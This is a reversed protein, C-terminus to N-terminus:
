GEDLGRRRQDARDLETTAQDFQAESLPLYHSELKDELFSVGKGKITRAIVCLPRAPDDDSFADHLQDFDHGDSERVHFGFAEWKRAFPELRLVEETRGFGQLGNADVVVTLNTLRHHASFLAAEWVAGEDCEGDSLLCATRRGSHLLHLNAYAIGAAIPMGHGLSGTAAPIADFARAAPHAPLLTGEKYYTQIEDESFIGFHRFTAYLSSAGHGKSLIFKDGPRLWAAYLYTLIDISSLGTGVHGAQAEFHMKLFRKRIEFADTSLRRSLESM